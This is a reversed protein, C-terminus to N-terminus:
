ETMAMCDRLWTHASLNDFFFRHKVGSGSYAKKCLEQTMSPTDSYQLNIAVARVQVTKLYGTFYAMAEPTALAEHRLIILGTYNDMNLKPRILALKEAMCEFFETNCPGEIDITILDNDVTIKLSGHSLFARKKM